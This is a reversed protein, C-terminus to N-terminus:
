AGPEAPVSISWFIALWALPILITIVPQVPSCQLWPNGFDSHNWRMIFQVAGFIACITLASSIRARAFRFGLEPFNLALRIFVLTYVYVLSYIPWGIHPILIAAFAPVITVGIFVCFALIAFLRWAKLVIWQPQTLDVSADHMNETETM